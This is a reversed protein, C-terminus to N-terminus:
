AYKPYRPAPPMAEREDQPRETRDQVTRRKPAFAPGVEVMWLWNKTKTSTRPPHPLPALARGSFALM